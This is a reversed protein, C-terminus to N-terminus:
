GGIDVKGQGGGVKGWGQERCIGSRRNVGQIQIEKEQAQAGATDETQAKTLQNRLCYSGM